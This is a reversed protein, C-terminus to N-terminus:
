HYPSWRSRCEKGVRREESRIEFFGRKANFYNEITKHYDLHDLTLNTFVGGSFNLGSIRKESISHSSVEMFCYECNANVMDSLLKNLTISDPTTRETKFSKDNIKNVITGVMGVKYNLKYFLQHLLTVVTTKGNTGTIGILKLKTSPNDYFNSSIIGIAKHSDPVKIYTIGKKYKDLEEEHVIVKVGKNIIENIFNHGNVVNGVLAVFLSGKEITKSNLSVSSVSIDINGHSSLVPVGELLINLIKM